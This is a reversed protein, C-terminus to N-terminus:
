PAPAPQNGNARERAILAACQARYFTCVARSLAFNPPLVFGPGPGQPGFIMTYDPNARLDFPDRSPAFKYIWPYSVEEFYGDSYRILCRIYYARLPGLRMPGQLPVCDGQAAAFFMEPTGAMIAEYRMQQPNRAPPRRQPPVNSLARQAQAITRSFQADLAAIQQASLARKAAPEATPEARPPHHITGHLPRFTPEITPAATPAPTRWATHLAALTPIPLPPLIPSQQPRTLQPERRPQARRPAPRQQARRSPRPVTRKEITIADSLAVIEPTPSPRVLMKAIVPAARNGFWIAVGGALLHLALSVILATILLPRRREDREPFLQM